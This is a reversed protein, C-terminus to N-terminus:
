LFAELVPEPGALSDVRAKLLCFGALRGRKRDSENSSFGWELPLSEFGWRVEHAQKPSAPSPLPEMSRSSFGTLGPQPEAAGSTGASAGTICGEPVFPAVIIALRYGSTTTEDVIHSVTVTNRKALHRLFSVGGQPPYSSYDTPYLNTVKM